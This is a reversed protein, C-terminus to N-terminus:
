RHVLPDLACAIFHSVGEVVSDAVLRVQSSSYRIRGDHYTRKVVRESIFKYSQSSQSSYLSGYERSNATGDVSDDGSNRIDDLGDDRGDHRNTDIGGRYKEFKASSVCEM